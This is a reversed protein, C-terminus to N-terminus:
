KDRQNLVCLSYLASKQSYTGVVTQAFLHFFEAFDASYNNHATITATVHSKSFTYCRCDARPFQSIRSFDASYDNHVAIQHALQSKLIHLLSLRRSTISFYTARLTSVCMCGFFVLNTTCAINCSARQGVTHRYIHVHIYVHIYTYVYM